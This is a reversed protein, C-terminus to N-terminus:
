YLKLATIRLLKHLVSAFPVFKLGIPFRNLWIRTAEIKSRQLKWHPPKPLLLFKLLKDAGISRSNLTASLKTAYM